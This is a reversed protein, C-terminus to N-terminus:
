RIFKEIDEGENDYIEEWFKKSKINIKTGNNLAKKKAKLTESDEQYAEKFIKKPKNNKM